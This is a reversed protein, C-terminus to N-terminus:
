KLLDDLEELISSLVCLYPCVNKLAFLSNINYIHQWTLIM